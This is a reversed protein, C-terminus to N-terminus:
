AVAPGLAFPALSAMVQRELYYTSATGEGDPGDGYGPRTEQQTANFRLDILDLIAQRVTAPVFTRGATYVVTYRYHTVDLHWRILGAETDVEYETPAVLTGTGDSSWPTVSPVGTVPCKPLVLVGGAAYVNVTETSTSLPGVVSEVKEVAADIFGALEVDHTTDTDPVNLHLKVEDLTVASSQQGTLLPM